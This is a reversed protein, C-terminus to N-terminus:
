AKSIRFVATLRDLATNCSTWDTELRDSTPTAIRIVEYRSNNWPVSIDFHAKEKAGYGLGAQEALPPLRM